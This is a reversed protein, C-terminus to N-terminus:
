FDTFGNLNCAISKMPNIVAVMILTIGTVNYKAIVIGRMVGLDFGVWMM